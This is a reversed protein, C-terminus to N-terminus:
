SKEAVIVGFVMDMGCGFKVEGDAPVTVAIEVPSGKPLTVLKGDPTKLETMCEGDVTRTFKLNLKEGPKGPIRDPVYGDKGAEVSVTRVGDAAVTGTNITAKPPDARREADKKCSVVTLGVVLLMVRLM